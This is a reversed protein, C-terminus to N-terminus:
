ARHDGTTLMWDPDPAIVRDATEGQKRALAAFFAARRRSVIRVDRCECGAQLCGGRAVPMPFVPATKTFTRTPRPVGPGPEGSEPRLQDPHFM